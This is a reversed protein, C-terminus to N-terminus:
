INVGIMVLFALAAVLGSLGMVVYRLIKSHNSMLFPILSFLFYFTVPNHFLTKFFM